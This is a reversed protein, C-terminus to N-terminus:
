QNMSLYKNMRSKANWDIGSLDMLRTLIVHRKVNFHHILLSVCCDRNHWLCLDEEVSWEKDEALEVIGDNAITSLIHFGNCEVKCKAFKQGYFDVLLKHPKKGPNRFNTIKWLRHQQEKFDTQLKLLVTMGLKGYNIMMKWHGNKVM